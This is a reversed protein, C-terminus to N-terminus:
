IRLFFVLCVFNWRINYFVEIIYFSIVKIDFGLRVFFNNWDFGVIEEKFEFVLDM